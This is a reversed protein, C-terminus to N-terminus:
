GNIKDYVAREGVPLDAARERYAAQPSPQVRTGGRCMLDVIMAFTLRRPYQKEAGNEFVANLRQPALVNELIGRLMVPVPAKKAYEALLDEALMARDETFFQFGKWNMVSDRLSCHQPRTPCVSLM